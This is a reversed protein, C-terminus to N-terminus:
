TQITSNVHMISNAGILKLMLIVITYRSYQLTMRANYRSYLKKM